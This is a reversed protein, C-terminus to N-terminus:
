RPFQVMSLKAEWEKSPREAIEGTWATARIDRSGWEQVTFRAGFSDALWGTLSERDINAYHEGDRLHPGGDFGSHAPRGAAAATVLLVGGEDQLATRAAKITASPDPDHELTEVCVVTDFEGAHSAVYDAPFSIVDVGEGGEIDLGTYEAGIFLHRISGNVDRAGFELVRRRPGIKVLSQFVYDWASFHM